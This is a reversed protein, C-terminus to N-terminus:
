CGAGGNYLNAREYDELPRDYFRLQDIQGSTFFRGTNSSPSNVSAAGVYVTKGVFASGGNNVLSKATV